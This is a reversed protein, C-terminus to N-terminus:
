LISLKVFGFIDSDEDLRRSKPFDYQQYKHNGPRSAPVIIDKFNDLQEAWAGTIFRWGSAHGIRLICEKGQICSNFQQLIENMRELYDEAGSYQDNKLESWIDIEDKVLKKTHNNILKFLSHIDAMENPFTGLSKTKGTINPWHAKVWDYYTKDINMQIVSDYDPAIAEIIQPKSSDMLDNRERINLNIIRSSIECGEEFYADGIKIFRFIDSNSDSGFLKAEVKKAEVKTKGTRFNKEAVISELDNMQRAFTTLVATRVAGKISSGPIYARGLGDHMCEKLTDNPRVSHAYNVLTRLAYKEPAANHGMRQVFDKTDGNREILRVWDDLHEIGILNLIKKPDIVYIYSDEGDNHQVFDSNNRLFNGSGIHVPTLTEIKVKSM